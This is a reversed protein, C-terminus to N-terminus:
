RAYCRLQNEVIGTVARRTDIGETTNFKDELLKEMDLRTAYDEDAGGSPEQHPVYSDWTESDISGDEHDDRKEHVERHDIFEPVQM